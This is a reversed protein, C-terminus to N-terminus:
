VYSIMQYKTIFTTYYKGNRCFVLESLSGGMSTHGYVSTWVCVHGLLFLCGCVRICGAEKEKKTEMLM